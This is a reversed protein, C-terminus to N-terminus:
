ATLRTRNPTKIARARQKQLSTAHLITPPGPAHEQKKRPHNRSTKNRRFYHDIISQRLRECLRQGRGIPHLYDRMTRRFALLLQAFSLRQPPIGQRSAEVLAYLAMAWLGVLSWEIEIRANAASTSLLKRRQFTHKLHRYFLEIGWRKAYLQIVQQDTLQREALISTVLYVPHKGNHAVVLRLALPPQGHRGAEDPWLYVTGASERVWGLQKLLRVNAGVRVLVDYGQEVLERLGAYGVFGADAAVLAGAPLDPLMERLHARESSDAPGSRWDWLLGSGAHWMVTLWLQPSNAKQVDKAALRRGRRNRGKRHHRITSFAQEHSRTRPLDIRSGDVGFMVWGGVQWHQRLTTQMRERLARTLLGVLEGTWRRLMKTFAQYTKALQQQEGGLWLMIKRVSRFREGLTLEDSWAWLLAGAALSKPTWRCDERFVITSGDVGGLLWRLCQQLCVVNLRVTDRHSM